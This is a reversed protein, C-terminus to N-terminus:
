GAGTPVEGSSGYVTGQEKQRRWSKLIELVEDGMGIEEAYDLLGQHYVALRVAYKMPDLEKRLAEDASDLMRFFLELQKHGKEASARQEAVMEQAKAFVPNEVPASAVAGRASLWPDLLWLVLCGVFLVLIGAALATPNRDVLGLAIVLGAPMGVLKLSFEALGM